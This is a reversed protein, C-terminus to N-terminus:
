YVNSGNHTFTFHYGCFAQCSLSGDDMTVTVGPPFYVVYLDDATPAPLKGADLLRGLEVQIQQNTISTGAPAAEDVYHGAFSGRGIHQTPTHYEDLWDFYASQTIAGYFADLQPQFMVASSWYITHVKAHSIVPGGYYSLQASGYAPAALPGEQTLNLASPVPAPGTNDDTPPSVVAACAPLLAAALAAAAFARTM